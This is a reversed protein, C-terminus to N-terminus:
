RMKPDIKSCKEGRAQGTPGRCIHPIIELIQIQIQEMEFFQIQIQEMELITNEDLNTNINAGDQVQMQIITCKRKLFQHPKFYKEGCIKWILCLAQKM